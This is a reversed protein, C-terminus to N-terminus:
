DDSGTVWREIALNVLAVTVATALAWVVANRLPADRDSGKPPESGTLTRYGVNLGKTAIWTAGMAVAPAVLKMNTNGAM